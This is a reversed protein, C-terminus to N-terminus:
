ENAAGKKMKFLRIVEHLYFPITCLQPIARGYSENFEEFGDGLSETLVRQVTAGDLPTLFYGNFGNLDGRSYFNTRCSVIMHCSPHEDAFSQIRRKATNLHQPQIEDLGDLLLLWLKEPVASWERPLLMGIIDDVYTNLSIFFPRLMLGDDSFVYELRRLETTKGSGADGVLVIRNDKLLVQALDLTYDGKLLPNSVKEDTLRVVRRSWYNPLAPSPGTIIPATTKTSQLIGDCYDQVITGLFKRVDKEFKNRDSFENVWQNGSRLQEKFTLVKRLEDMESLPPLSDSAQKFYFNILPLGKTKWRNCAIQFEEETGSGYESGTKPNIAGSPTGFRKWLIGIFVDYDGIEDNIIGQVRQGYYLVVDRWDRVRLYINHRAGILDNLESCVETVRQKEDEVDRPCSVFVTIHTASEPM